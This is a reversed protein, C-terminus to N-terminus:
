AVRVQNLIEVDELAEACDLGPLGDPCRFSTLYEPTHSILSLIKAVSELDKSLLRKSSVLEILLSMTTNLDETPSPLFLSGLTTIIETFFKNYDDFNYKLWFILKASLVDFKACFESRFGHSKLNSIQQLLFVTDLTACLSVHFFNIM